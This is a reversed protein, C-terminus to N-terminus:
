IPFQDPLCAISIAGVSPFLMPMPHLNIMRLGHPVFVTM